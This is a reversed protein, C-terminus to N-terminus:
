LYAVYRSIYNYTEFIPLFEVEMRSKTLTPSIFVSVLLFANYVSYM